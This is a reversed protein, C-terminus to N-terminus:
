GKAVVERRKDVDAIALAETLIADFEPNSWGFENWAEGSRYALAWIQVGLPRHNWNTSSFPYKTWDNWFTSGPLVTRK